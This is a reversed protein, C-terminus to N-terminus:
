SSLPTERCGTINRQCQLDIQHISERRLPSTCLFNYRHIRFLLRYMIPHWCRAHRMLLFDRM